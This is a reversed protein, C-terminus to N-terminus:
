FETMLDRYLLPVTQRQLKPNNRSAIAVTDFFTRWLKQFHHESEDLTPAVADLVEHLQLQKGDYVCITGRKIDHIIFQEHKLRKIFHKGLLPLVNRQPAIKAYLMKGEVMEFRTFGFMKHMTSLVRKQFGEVAYVVPHALDRLLALDKFGMRMYLLLDREFSQDDCLFTHFIRQQIESPFDAKMRAIARQAITQDTTIFLREDLLNACNPEKSLRAPIRKVVYSHHLATLFGEFSGDYEWLM